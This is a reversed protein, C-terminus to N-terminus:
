GAAKLSLRLGQEFTRPASLSSALKNTFALCCSQHSSCLGALHRVHHLDFAIFDSCPTQLFPSPNNQTQFTLIIVSPVSVSPTSHLTISSPRPWKAPCQGEQNRLLHGLQYVANQLKSPGRHPPRAAFLWQCRCQGRDRLKDPDAYSAYGAFRSSVKNSSSMQNQTANHWSSSTESVKRDSTTTTDTLPDYFSGATKERAPPDRHGRHDRMDQPYYVQPAHLPSHVPPPLSPPATSTLFPNHLGSRSSTGNSSVSAAAAAAPSPSVSTSGSLHSPHHFEPQTPSRLSFSHRPPQASSASAAAAAISSSSSSPAAPGNDSPQVPNLIDRRRREDRDRDRGRDRDREDDYEHLAPRQLVTSHFNSEM